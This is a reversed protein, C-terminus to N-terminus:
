QAGGGAAALAARLQSESDVLFNARTVVEQGAELGDVVEMWEDSRVGLHVVRPAFRGEGLSLFVIDQTGARIVADAPLRLAMRDAGTLTVEGYMGPLLQGDPNAFHLHVQTTRTGPNLVPDIFAVEGAFVRRPYAPVSLSAPMGVQVQALDTEYADAMVWVMSLDTIEYPSDGPNLRTGEVVDKTTVVGAIPSVVILTRAPQRTTELRGLEDAPVDWLELKRRAAAVLTDGSATAGGARALADRTQLALVYEGEAALLSPSYLSYLPEGRRVARGVFDVFLREVYGEVKTSTRRVRTPDVQVQGVTRWRGSVPGLEVVQTHLGILQQRRPDITVTALGAPVGKAAETPASVAAPAALVLKMGCLPCDAPHDSTITPHMPCQYLPAPSGVPPGSPDAAPPTAGPTGAAAAIRVLKMGCLPCDAPHDATITPHMPCQYLPAPSAAPPGSPDAASPTAGSAGAAAAVRVLKMGCLPCDAPHDATITPHMPCQYLPAPSAAPPLTRPQLWWTVSGAGLLVGVVLVALWRALARGRGPRAATAVRPTRTPEAM